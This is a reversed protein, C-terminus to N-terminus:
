NIKLNKQSVYEDNGLQADIIHTSHGELALQSTTDYMTRATAYTRRLASTDFSYKEAATRLAADHENLKKAVTLLDFEHIEDQALLAIIGVLNRGVEPLGLKEEVSLRYARALLEVRERFDIVNVGQEQYEPIRQVETLAATLHDHILSLDPSPKRLADIHEGLTQAYMNLRQQYITRLTENVM